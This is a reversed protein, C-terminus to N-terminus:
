VKGIERLESIRKKIRKKEERDKSGDNVVLDFTDDKFGLNTIGGKQTIIKLKGFYEEAQMKSQETNVLMEDSCDLSVVECGFTALTVSFKGSGCGPELVVEDGRLKTYEVIKQIYPSNRFNIFFNRDAHIRYASKNKEFREIWEDKVEKEKYLRKM